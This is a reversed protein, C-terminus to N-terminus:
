FILIVYYSGGGGWGVGGLFFFRTGGKLSTVGFSLNMERVDKSRCTEYIHCSDLVDYM